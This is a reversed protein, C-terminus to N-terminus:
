VRHNLGGKGSHVDVGAQVSGQQAQPRAREQFEDPKGPVLGHRKGSSGGAKLCAEEWERKQSM